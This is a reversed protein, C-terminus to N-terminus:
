LKSLLIVINHQSTNTINRKESFDNANHTLSINGLKFLSFLNSLISTLMDCEENKISVSMNQLSACSKKYQASLTYILYEFKYRFLFAITNKM